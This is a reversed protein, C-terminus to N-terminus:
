ILKKLLNLNYEGLVDQSRQSIKKKNPIIKYYNLSNKKALSEIPNNKGTTSLEM